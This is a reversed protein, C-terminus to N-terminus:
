AGMGRLLALIARPLDREPVPRTGAFEARELVRATAPSPFAAPWLGVVFIAITHFVWQADALSLKPLARVLAPPLLEFQALIARKHLAIADESINQELVSSLMSLLKCYRPRALFETSITASVAGVFGPTLGDLRELLAAVFAAQERLLLALLVEERSEFYRYINSKTFGARAAIANLGAGAPGQEDFLATAAAILTERRVTKQEPQRARQFVSM